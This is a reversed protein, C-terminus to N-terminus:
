KPAFFKELYLYLQIGFKPNTIKIAISIPLINKFLIKLIRFIVVVPFGLIYLIYWFIFAIKNKGKFILASLIIILAYIANKYAVIVILEEKSLANSIFEINKLFGMLYKFIFPFWILLGLIFKIVSNVKSFTPNEYIINKEDIKKNM